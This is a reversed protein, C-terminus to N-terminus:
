LHSRTILYQGEDQSKRREGSSGGASVRMCAYAYACACVPYQSCLHQPELKPSLLDLKSGLVPQVVQHLRHRTLKLVHSVSLGRHLHPIPSICRRARAAARGAVGRGARGCGAVGRRAVDRWAVVQRSGVTAQSLRRRRNLSYIARCSYTDVPLLSPNFRIMFSSFLFNFSAALSSSTLSNPM